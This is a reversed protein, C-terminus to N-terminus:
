PNKTFCVGSKESSILEQVIIAIQIESVKKKMKKCFELIRKNGKMKKVSDVMKLLDKRGVGIFTDFLGAFSHNESDEANSSSRVAYIKKASCNRKVYAAIENKRTSFPIAFGEPVPLGLQTLDYLGKAKNGYIKADNAKDIQVIM